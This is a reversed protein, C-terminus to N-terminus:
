AAGDGRCARAGHLSVPEEKQRRERVTVPKYRPQFLTEKQPSKWRRRGGKGGWGVSILWSVGSSCRSRASGSPM